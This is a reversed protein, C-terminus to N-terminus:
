SVPRFAAASTTARARATVAAAQLPSSPSAGSVVGVVAGGVSPAFPTRVWTAARRAWSILM